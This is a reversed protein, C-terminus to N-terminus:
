LTARFKELMKRPAHSLPQYLTTVVDSDPGNMGEQIARYMGLLASDDSTPDFAGDCFHIQATAGGRLMRGIVQTLPPINTWDMARREASDRETLAYRLSEELRNLWERHCLKRFLQAREGLSLTDPGASLMGTLIEEIAWRHMGQVHFDLDEPHLHPRVLYMTAGLAAVYQDNLINHGREIAPLPAVLLWVDEHDALTGINGRSITNTWHHTGTDDDPVMRLIQGTWEPRIKLVASLVDKTELYSGVLLMIRRRGASLDDRIEELRSPRPGRM